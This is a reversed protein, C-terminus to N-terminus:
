PTGGPAAEFRVSRVFAEFATKQVGVLDSPGTMKFFWTLGGQPVAAALIRKQPGVLDIYAAPKGAIEVAKTEERLKEPDIPGLGIQERWRQVNSALGGAEGGLPIVTIEATKDGERVILTAVRMGAGGSDKTEQWGEPKTYTIPSTARKAPAPQGAAFPPMKGGKRGPGTLDVRTAPKGDVTRSETVKDLDGAGLAPLGVEGAWRKVNALVSATEPGTNEFRTVTLELPQDGGLRFTAFRPPRAPGAKWGDPVKWTVAEDGPKGTFHFSAVFADFAKAETAVAAAQGSLKVFWTEQDQPIIMGLLRAEVAESGSTDEPSAKPVRYTVIEDKQCGVVGLCGLLILCLGFRCRGFAPKQGSGLCDASPALPM